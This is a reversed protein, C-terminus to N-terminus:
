INKQILSNKKQVIYFPGISVNSDISINEAYLTSVVMGFPGIYSLRCAVLLLIKLYLYFIIQM